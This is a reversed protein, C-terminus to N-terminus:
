TVICLLKEKLVNMVACFNMKLLMGHHMMTSLEDVSRLVCKEDPLFINTKSPIDELKHVLLRFVTFCDNSISKDRHYEKMKYLVDVIVTSPFKDQVGFYQM